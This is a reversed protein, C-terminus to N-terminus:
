HGDFAEEIRSLREELDQHEEARIRLSILAGLKSASEIDLEGTTVADTIQQIAKVPSSPLTEALSIPEARQKPVPQWRELILRQAKSDGDIAQQIITDLLVSAPDTVDHRKGFSRLADTMRTHLSKVGPTRGKPNGSQGKKFPM